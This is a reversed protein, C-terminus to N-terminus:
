AFTCLFKRYIEAKKEIKLPYARSSSPMRYFYLLRNNYTFGSFDGIRPEEIDFQRIFIDTAKQGTTAVATCQPIKDLLSRIDAPQVVELFEDSANDNLRRVVSATDYLAIGKKILLNIIAEKNFSKGTKNIFRDKANYFVLGMIRWMDNNFNPYYFDMSWRKKPPPFSGLMLLRANEPLFPM